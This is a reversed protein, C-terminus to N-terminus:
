RPLRPRPRRPGHRPLDYEIMRVWDPAIRDRKAVANEASMLISKAVLWFVTGWGVAYGIPTLVTVLTRDFVQRFIEALVWMIATAICGIPSSICWLLVGGGYGLVVTGLLSRWSSNSRASCYLGVAGLFYMALWTIGLAVGVVVIAELGGTGAMMLVLGISVWWVTRPAFRMVLGGVGLAFLLFGIQIM